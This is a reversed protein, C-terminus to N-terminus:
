RRQNKKAERIRRRVAAFADRVALYPDDNAQDSSVLEEGPVSLDVVVRFKKPDPAEVAIRRVHLAPAIKQLHQVQREINAELAPSPTVGHFSIPSVKITM